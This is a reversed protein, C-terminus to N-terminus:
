SILSRTERFAVATMQFRGLQNKRLRGAATLRQALDRFELLTIEHRLDDPLSEYVREVDNPFFFEERVVALVHLDSERVEIEEINVLFPLVTALVVVPIDNTGTAHCVPLLIATTIASQIAGRAVDMHWKGLRLELPTDSEGALQLLALDRILEAFAGLPRLLDLLAAADISVVDAADASMFESLPSPVGRDSDSTM